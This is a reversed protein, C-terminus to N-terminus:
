RAAQVRELRACVSAICAASSSCRACPAGARQRQRLDTRQDDDPSARVTSRQRRGRTWPCVRRARWSCQGHGCRSRCGAARVKRTAAAINLLRDLRVYGASEPIPASPRGACAEAPGHPRTCPQVVDCFALSVPPRASCAPVLMRAPLWTREARPMRAIGANGQSIVTTEPDSVGRCAAGAGGASGIALAAEAVADNESTGSGDDCRGSRRALLRAEAEVEVEGGAGDGCSWGGRACAMRLAGRMAGSWRCSCGTGEASGDDLKEAM